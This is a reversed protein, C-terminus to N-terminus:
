SRYACLITTQRRSVIPKTAPREVPKPPKHMFTDDEDEEKHYGGHLDLDDKGDPVEPAVPDLRISM